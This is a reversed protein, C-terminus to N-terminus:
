SATGAAAWLARLRLGAGVWVLGCLMWATAPALWPWVVAAALGVAVAVNRDPKGGLGPFTRQGTVAWGITAVDDAALTGIVALVAPAPAIVALAAALMVDGAQDAVEGLVAGAPRQRDARRAVEGDAVALGLRIAVLPGILLWWTPSSRAGAVVTCAALVGVALGTWTVADASISRAVTADILTDLHRTTRAKLRYLGGNASPTTGMADGQATAGATM